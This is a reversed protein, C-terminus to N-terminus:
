RKIEQLIVRMGADCQRARDLCLAARDQWDSKLSPDTTTAARQSHERASRRQHRQEHDLCELAYMM